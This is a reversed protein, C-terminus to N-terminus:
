AWTTPGAPRWRSWTSPAPWRARLALSLPVCAVAALARGVRLAAVQDRGRSRSTGAGSPADRDADLLDNLWGISLQGTLVAAGVLVVGGVTRGATVALATVMATVAVTPEPHCAAALAGRHVPRM